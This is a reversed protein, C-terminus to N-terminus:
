EESPRDAVAVAAAAESLLERDVGVGPPGADTHHTAEVDVPRGVPCGFFAGLLTAFADNDSWVWLPAGGGGEQQWVTMCAILAEHDPLHTIGDNFLLSQSLHTTAVAALEAASEVSISEGAVDTRVGSDAVVYTYTDPVSVYTVTPEARDELVKKPNANGFEVLM